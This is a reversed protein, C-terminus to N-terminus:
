RRFRRRLGAQEMLPMVGSNWRELGDHYDVWTLLAGAVGVRSLMELKDVIEEATGVLPFGGAGAAFRLSFTELVAPPMLKTNAAQGAMWGALAAEDRKEVAYRQLYAEAEQRTERQVVYTHIWVQVERGYHDRALAKYDEVQRRCSEEDESKLIIFCLDAHAAAFHQGRDSGGANMIPVHSQIPKPSSMGRIVKFFAGDHDFEETETWLRQLVSLWEEAHDYRHDHEKMPNGFMELEAKNWGGVVNLAFRGGSIHDITAGQKAALIPHITPVHSTAFIAAYSTAQAIGAAFAYPEFVTGSPHNPQDAVYGKWRAFPVIAEFGADDALVASRLSQSWNLPRQEPVTTMSAGKGNICFIGLKMKNDNHIPNTIHTM